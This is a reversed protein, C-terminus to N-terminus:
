YIMRTSEMRGGNGAKHLRRKVRTVINGWRRKHFIGCIDRMECYHARAHPKRFDIEIKLRWSGEVRKHPSIMRQGPAWALSSALVGWVDPETKGHSLDYTCAVMAPIKCPNSCQAWTRMGAQCICWWSPQRCMELWQRKLTWWGPFMENWSGKIDTKRKVDLFNYERNRNRWLVWSRKRKEKEKSKVICLDTTLLGAERSVWGKSPM